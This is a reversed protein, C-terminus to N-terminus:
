DYNHVGGRYQIMLGNGNDSSGGGTNEATLDVPDIAGTIEGFKKGGIVGITRMLNRGSLGGLGITTAVTLGDAVSLNKGKQPNGIYLRQLHGGLKGDAWNILAGGGMGLVIDGPLGSTLDFIKGKKGKKGKILGLKQAGFYAAGLALIPAVM